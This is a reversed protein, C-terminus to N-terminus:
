ITSGSSAAEGGSRRYSEMMTPSAEPIIREVEAVFEPSFWHSRDAWYKQMEPMGVLDTM